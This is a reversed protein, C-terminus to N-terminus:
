RARPRVASGKRLRISGGFTELNVDASGSGLTAVVRRGRRAEGANYGELTFETSVSGQYTRFTFTANGGEPLGLLIDGNHTGFSYHGGDALRGEYVITGNVTAADVIKSEIGTMTIGGNVTDVSLDGSSDRITVKENVSTATIKGRANSIQVEGQVSKATIVGTGGKVIVDGQVTDAFVEAQAGEITVFNYTGEIRLPMWAPATIEYDVSAPGRSSSATISVGGSTPRINIRTRPQHRAVVRLSDRDWTRLIVEGAFNNVTLRGGRQVAITEDTQPAPQRAPQALGDVPGVTLTLALIVGTLVM